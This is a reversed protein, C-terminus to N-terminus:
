ASREAARRRDLMEKLLRAYDGRADRQTRGMNTRHLRRHLVVDSIDLETLGLEYARAAWAVFEGVRLHTPMPGVADFAAHRVLLGGPLRGPLSHPAMSVRQAEEASLDPSVFCRVRGWVLDPPSEQAEAVELRAAISRPAMVDDADLFALQTGRAADAGANRAAAAGSRERRLLRVDPAYAAAVAASRDTSGDDVVVVDVAVDVQALVSEIAEGLYRAGDHVPIVVSILTV